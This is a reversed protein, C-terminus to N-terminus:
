SVRGFSWKAMEAERYFRTGQDQQPGLEVRRRGGKVGGGERGIEGGELGLSQPRHGASGVEGQKYESKSNTLLGPTSPSHNISVGEYIQKSVPVM